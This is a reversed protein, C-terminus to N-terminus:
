RYHVLHCLGGGRETSLRSLTDPLRNFATEEGLLRDFVPDALLELALELRRRHTWRPRQAPAVQGVQSSRVTLRRSHFGAGLPTTVPATGYWSLVTVTAERGALALATVLGDPVGTAEFVADCDQPADGPAAFACGLAPALAAKAADVDVIVVETGPVRAALRAVSAGVVGAGVVAVRQGPLVPSDWLANVATEVNAALVARRAPVGDPVRLAADGPITFRDQHPHLAFVTQGRREAPGAEVTGVAAYGYKVPFPFRGEQFPCRMVAWESEPVRGGFVLTETGRSIGSWLVRVTVADGEARALPAARIEGQGPGTVWFARATEAM